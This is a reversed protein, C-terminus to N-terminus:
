TVVRERLLGAISVNKITVISSLIILNFSNFYPIMISNFHSILNFLKIEKINYIISIQTKKVV